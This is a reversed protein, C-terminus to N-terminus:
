LKSTSGTHKRLFENALVAADEAEKVFGVMRGTLLIDHVADKTIEVDVTNGETLRLDESMKVGDHLLVEHGGYQIWLPTDTQFPNGNFNLYPSNLTLGTAESPRFGSAGWKGFSVGVYDDDAFPSKEFTGDDDYAIKPSSWPSWLWAISPTRLGTEAGNDAIYKLLGLALHGGASDGSVIIKSPDVGCAFILYTYASIADQLQAPFRSKQFTVLRYQPCFVHTADSSKLMTKAAFGADDTRGDGVAYAGGHFHMVVYGPKKSLSPKEPYWTGGTEIPKIQPDVTTVGTYYKDQAPPFTVFREKEKGPVLSVPVQVQVLSMNWLATRMVRVRVAQALSWNPNPRFSRPIYYLIWLPLRATNFAIALLAWLAKAPQYTVVTQLPM